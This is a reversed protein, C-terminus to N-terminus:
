RPTGPAPFVADCALCVIFIEVRTRGLMPGVELARIEPSACVRCTLEDAPSNASAPRAALDHALAAVLTRMSGPPVDGEHMGLHDLVRSVIASAIAKQPATSMQARGDHRLVCRTAAMAVAPAGGYRMMSRVSLLKGM